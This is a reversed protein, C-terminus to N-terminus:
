IIAHWVSMPKAKVHTVGLIYIQAAVGNHKCSLTPIYRMMMYIASIDSWARDGVYGTYGGVDRRGRM